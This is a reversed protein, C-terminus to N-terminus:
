HILSWLPLELDLGVVPVSRGAIPQNREHLAQRVMFPILKNLTEKICGTGLM